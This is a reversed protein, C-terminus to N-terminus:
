RAAPKQVYVESESKKVTKDRKLSLLRSYLALLRSRGATSVHLHSGGGSSCVVKQSLLRCLALSHEVKRWQDCGDDISCRRYEKGVREPNDKDAPTRDEFVQM